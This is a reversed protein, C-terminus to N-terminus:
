RRCFDLEILQQKNDERTPSSKLTRSLSDSQCYPQYLYMSANWCKDCVICLKLDASIKFGFSVQFSEFDKVSRVM